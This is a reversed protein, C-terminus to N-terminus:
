WLAAHVIFVSSVGRKRSGRNAPKPKKFVEKTIRGWGRVGKGGAEEM